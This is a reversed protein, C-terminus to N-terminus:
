CAFPYKIAPHRDGEVKYTIHDLTMKDIVDDLTQIEDSIELTFKTEEIIERDRHENEYTEFQNSYIHCNTNVHTVKGPKHGTIQAMLQLFFYCQKMNSRTGIPFDSSRQVSTLNLVGDVLSFVHMFMCARLCGQDIEGPNHMLLIEGRDDVGKKLNEYVKRLQNVSGKTSSPWNHLWHGYVLGMDNEGKRNPNALWGKTENANAYWSKTGLAEMESADTVGKLYGLFEGLATNVGMTLTTMGPFKGAGVDYHMVITGDHTRCTIGTRENYIDKGNQYINELHYLYQREPSAYTVVQEGTAHNYDISAIPGKSFTINHTDTAILASGDFALVDTSDTVVQYPFNTEETM